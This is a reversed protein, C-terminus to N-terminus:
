INNMKTFTYQGPLLNIDSQLSETSEVQYPMPAIQQKVVMTPSRNDHFDLIIIPSCLIQVILLFEDSTQVRNKGRKFLFSPTFESEPKDPPRRIAIFYFRQRNVRHPIRFFILLEDLVNETMSDPFSSFIMRLFIFRRSNSNRKQSKGSL